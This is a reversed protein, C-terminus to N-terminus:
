DENVINGNRDTIFIGENTSEFVKATLQRADSAEEQMVWGKALIVSVVAGGLLLPIIILGITQVTLQNSLTLVM